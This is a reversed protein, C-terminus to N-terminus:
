QRREMPPQPKHTWGPNHWDKYNYRVEIDVSLKSLEYLKRLSSMYKRFENVTLSGKLHNCIFCCCVMNDKDDAGGRSIPTKHDITMIMPNNSKCYYCVNGRSDKFDRKEQPTMDM